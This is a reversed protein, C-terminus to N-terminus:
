AMNLAADRQMTLLQVQQTLNLVRDELNGVRIVLEAIEFLLAEHLVGLVRKGDKM